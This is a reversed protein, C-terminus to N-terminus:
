IAVWGKSRDGGIHPLMKRYQVPVLPIAEDIYLAYQPAERVGEPSGTSVTLMQDSVQVAWLRFAQSMTGSDEVVPQVASLRAPSKSM